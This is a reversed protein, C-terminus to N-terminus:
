EKSAPRDPRRVAAALLDNVVASRTSSHASPRHKRRQASISDIRAMTENEVRGTVPTTVM